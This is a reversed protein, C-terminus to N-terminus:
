EHRADREVQDSCSFLVTKKCGINLLDLGFKLLTKRPGQKFGEVVNQSFRGPLKQLIKSVSSCISRCLHFCRTPEILQEAKTTCHKKQSFIHSLHCGFESM